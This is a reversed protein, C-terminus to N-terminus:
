LMGWVKRIGWASALAVLGWLGFHKIVLYLVGLGALITCPIGVLAMRRLIENIEDQEQAETLPVVELRTEPRNVIRPRDLPATPSVRWYNQTIGNM